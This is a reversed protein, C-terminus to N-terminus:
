AALACRRARAMYHALPPTPLGAAKALDDWRRLRIAEPAGPRALFAQAEEESYTGGQLALSRRSDDSLADYYGANVRCLCRKADVHLQIPGLVDDGFLGRLFPIVRYQHVDDIGRETPTEGLEHLLHGLDHLLAATVLADDAGEQEALLASQLAHELQTVPEGSYQEGGREAFLREIDDLTLAM